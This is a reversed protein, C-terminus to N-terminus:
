LGNKISVDRSYDILNDYKDMRYKYNAFSAVMKIQYLVRESVGGAKTYSDAVKKAGDNIAKTVFVVGLAM